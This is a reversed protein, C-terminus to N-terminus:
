NVDECGCLFGLECGGRDVLGNVHKKRDKM